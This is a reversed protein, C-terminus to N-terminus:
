MGGTSKFDIMLSNSSDSSDDDNLLAEWEENYFKLLENNEFKSNIQILSAKRNECDDRATIFNLQRDM